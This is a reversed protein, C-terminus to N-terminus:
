PFETNPATRHQQLLWRIGRRLCGAIGSSNSSWNRASGIGPGGQGIAAQQVPELLGQGLPDQVGFQVVVEVAALRIAPGVAAIAVAALRHQGAGAPQGQLDRAVPQGGEVRLQDGLVLAAEGAEVVPDDRHVGAAHAGALDLPMQAFEVADLDRGVQDARHGVGHEVLDGLPLVAREFGRGM